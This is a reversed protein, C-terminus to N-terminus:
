YKRNKSLNSVVILVSSVVLWMISAALLTNFINTVYTTFFDYLYEPSLHIRKIYGSELMIIPVIGTMLGTAIMAFIVFRVGNHTFRHLRRLISLCILVFLVCGVISITFIKDYVNRVKIFASLLPMQVHDTYEKTISSIYTKLNTEVEADPTIGVEGLYARANVELRNALADTKASYSEDRFGAEIYGNVDKSIEKSAFVKELVTVPIGIPITISKAEEFIDKRVFEYYNNVSMNKYFANRSFGSWQIVLLITLGLLALSLLFSAITSIIERYREQMIVQHQQKIEQAKTQM